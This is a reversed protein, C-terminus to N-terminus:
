GGLMERIGAKTLSVYGWGGARRAAIEIPVLDFERLRSLGCATTKTKPTEPSHQVDWDFSTGADVVCSLTSNSHRGIMKGRM